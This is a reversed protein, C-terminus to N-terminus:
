KVGERRLSLACGPVDGYYDCLEGLKAALAEGGPRWVKKSAARTLVL